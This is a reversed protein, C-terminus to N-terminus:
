DKKQRPGSQRNTIIYLKIAFRKQDKKFAHTLLNALTFDSASFTARTIFLNLHKRAWSQGGHAARLTDAETALQAADKLFDHPQPAGKQPM